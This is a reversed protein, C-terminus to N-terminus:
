EQLHLTNRLVQHLLNKVPLGAQLSSLMRSRHLFLFAHLQLHDSILCFIVLLLQQLLLPEKKYCNKQLESPENRNTPCIFVSVYKSGSSDFFDNLFGVSFMNLISNPYISLNHHRNGTFTDINPYVFLVILYIAM